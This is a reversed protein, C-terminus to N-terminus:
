AASISQGIAATLQLYIYLWLKLCLDSYKKKESASPTPM